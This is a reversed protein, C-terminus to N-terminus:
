AGEAVPQPEVEDPFAPHTWAHRLSTVSKPWLFCYFMEGPRVPLALFPDVIGVPNRGFKGDATVAQGPRLPLDHNNTMPAVAIHVADRKEGGTLLKGISDLADVPKSESM